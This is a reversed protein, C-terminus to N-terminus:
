RPGDPAMINKAATLRFGKLEQSTHVATCTMYDRKIHEAVGHGWVCNSMEHAMCM